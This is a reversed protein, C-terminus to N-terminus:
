FLCGASLNVLLRNTNGSIPQLMQGAATAYLHIRKGVKISFSVRLKASIYDSTLYALEKPYFDNVIASTTAVGGYIYEGGLNYNYGGDLGILLNSSPFSFNKDAFLKAFINTASFTSSPVQYTDKIDSFDAEAGLKWSYGSQKKAAGLMINYSLKGMLTRYTSMVGSSITTWKHVGSTNDFVQVYEIGNTADNSAELLIKQNKKQGFLMQMNLGYFMKSTRGMRKPIKPNQVVEINQLDFFAEALMEVDSVYSYQLSGGYKNGEYLFTKVGQNGGVVSNSLFGLGRMLAVPQDKPGNNSPQSREFNREYHLAIGIINKDNISIAVSPTIDLIYKYSEVRPDVQKASVLTRYSADIGFAVKNWFVPSALKFGLDYTQSRWDSLNYDAVYYPMDHSPESIMCNYLTNKKFSNDFTFNGWLSIGFLQLAANTNFMVGNSKNGEQLSTFDGTSLAYKLSLDSYSSLPAFAMGAANNTNFWLTHEFNTELLAPNTITKAINQAEASYACLGLILAGIILKKM